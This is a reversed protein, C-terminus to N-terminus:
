PTSRLTRRILYLSMVAWVLALGFWTIAYGLHDNPIATTSVPMPRAGLDPRDHRRAVILIPEASLAAAMADVDRAYWVNQSMDPAPTWSSVEDPWHLNGTVTVAGTPPPARRTQESVAGLDVLVRRGEVTLPTIMRYEPSQGTVGILVYAVGPGLAGAGQVPHYEDAIRDPTAPLSVPASDIKANIRGLMEQKWSLRQTQWFGLSVLVACGVLGLLIPFLARRM